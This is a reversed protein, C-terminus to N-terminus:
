KCIRFAESYGRIIELSECIIEQAEKINGMDLNSRAENLLESLNQISDQQIVVGPLKREPLQLVIANTTGGLKRIENM